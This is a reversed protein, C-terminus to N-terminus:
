KRYMASMNRAIAIECICQSFSSLYACTAATPLQSAKKSAALTTQTFIDQQQQVQGQLHEAQAKYQSLQGLADALQQQVDQRQNTSAEVAAAAAAAAGALQQQLSAGHAFAAQLDDQLRGVDQQLRSITLAAQRADEAATAASAESAQQMGALESQLHLVQSQLSSQQKSGDAQLVTLQQQLRCSLCAPM